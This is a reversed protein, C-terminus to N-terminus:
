CLKVIQQYKGHLDLETLDEGPPINAELVELGNPTIVVDWGVLRAAPVESALDKVFAICQKFQPVQFNNFEIGTTPHCEFIEDRFTRGAGKLRGTQLDVVCAIGGVHANDTISEGRGVRLLVNVIHVKGEKDTFTVM